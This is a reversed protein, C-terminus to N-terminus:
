RFLRWEKAVSRTTNKRYVKYRSVGECSFGRFHCHGGRCELGFSSFYCYRIFVSVTHSLFQFNFTNIRHTNQVGDAGHLSGNFSIGLTSLVVSVLSLLLRLVAGSISSARHRAYMLSFGIELCSFVLRFSASSCFIALSSVICLSTLVGPLCVSSM